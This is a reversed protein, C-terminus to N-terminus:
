WSAATWWACCRYGATLRASSHYQVPAPGPLLARGFEEDLVLLDLFSMGSGGYREPVALGMWGQEALTRWLAPSYGLSDTEMARVHAEPCEKALLERATERLLRQEQSLELDM